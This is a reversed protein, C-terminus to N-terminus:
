TTSKKSTTTKLNSYNQNFHPFTDYYEPYTVENKEKLEEIAQCYGSHIEQMRLSNVVDNQRLQYAYESELEKLRMQLNNTQAIREELIQRSILIDKSTEFDKDMKIAKGETNLLKWM